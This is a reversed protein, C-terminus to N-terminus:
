VSIANNFYNEFVTLKSFFFDASSLFYQFNEAHLSNIDDIKTDQDSKAVSTLM